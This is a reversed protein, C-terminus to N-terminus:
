PAPGEVGLDIQEARNAAGAEGDVRADATKADGDVHTNGDALDARQTNTGSWVMLGDLMRLHNPRARLRVTVEEAQLEHASRVGLIM